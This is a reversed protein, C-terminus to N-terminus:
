RDRGYGRPPDIAQLEELDLEVIVQLKDALPSGELNAPMNDLWARYEDQLAVLVAVAAAWREPRPQTRVGRRDRGGESLRALTPSTPPIQRRRRLQARHRAQREAPSMPELGIRHRPM